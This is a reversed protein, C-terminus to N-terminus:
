VHEGGILKNEDPLLRLPRGTKTGVRQASM